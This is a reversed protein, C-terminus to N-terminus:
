NGMIPIKRSKAEARLPVTVELLGDRYTAAVRGTEVPKPLHFARAFRGAPRERHHIRVGEKAEVPLREGKITLIDDKVEIEVADPKMGPLEVTFIFAEISESVDVAPTWNAPENRKLPEQRPAGGFLTSFRREAEALERM